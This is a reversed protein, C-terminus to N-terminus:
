YKADSSGKKTNKFGQKCSNNRTQMNTAKKQETYYYFDPSYLSSKKNQIIKHRHYLQYYTIEIKIIPVEILQVCAIILVLVM